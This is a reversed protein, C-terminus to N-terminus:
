GFKESKESGDSGLFSNVWGVGFDTGEPGMMRGFGPYNVPPPAIRMALGGAQGGFGNLWCILENESGLSSALLVPKTAFSFGDVPSIIAM